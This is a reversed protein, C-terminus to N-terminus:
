TNAKTKDSPERSNSNPSEELEIDTELSSQEITEVNNEGGLSGAVTKTLRKVDMEIAKIEYNQINSIVEKMLNDEEKNFLYSAVIQPLKLIAVIVTVFSSVISVASATVTEISSNLKLLDFARWVVVLFAVVVVLMVFVIVGFFCGKLINKTSMSSSLQIKYQTLFDVYVDTYKEHTTKQDDMKENQENNQIM